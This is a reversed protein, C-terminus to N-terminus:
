FPPPAPPRRSRTASISTTASPHTRTPTVRVYTHAATGELHAGLSRYGAYPGDLGYAPMRVMVLDPRIKRLEAYGLGLKDITAPVNNEFVVDSISVLERFIRAGEPEDLNLTMSSKNRAHANFHPWRNWPHDGPEWGPYAM